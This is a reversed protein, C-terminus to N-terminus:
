PEQNGVESEEWVSYDSKRSKKVAYLKTDAHKLAADISDHDYSDASAIGISCSVRQDPSMEVRKHVAEEIDEIFNNELELQRYIRKATEVGEDLTHGPMILLFEDGGYRVVYGNKGAAREFLRSFCKLIVDGVAHGFTDNCLKFNDLDMYLVTACMSKSEGKSVQAEYDSIKKAFGQRNLLGTLLDTIASQQLKRNMESIENRAKLRYLTDTLQRLAFKFITIDNRDLFIINNTMNDHLEIAAIMYGTLEDDVSLPVCGFSVVRNVGFVSVIAHLDYFEMEYRSTVFEKKHRTLYETINLLQEDSIDYDGCMYRLVPKKDIIEVYIMGDLNYNNQMTAMATEIIYDITCNEKNILEQWAVLFDIGKTKDALMMEMESLQVLEELQYKDVTTLPLPIYKTILSQRHMRAFLIEEKHKYGKSTCSEMCAELIERAKEPKNQKEYLEAQELAFMTYVFFQLGDSRMMHYRAKDFFLQAREIDENKELLGCDFYYFFLDDDWLFYNPEGDPHLVHYIVREMKNLYFHANYDIGMKYSCYALMGYVKSMNCINMRHKKISRLLKLCLVLHNFATEFNDALIANTAMNYLTEAVFYYKKKKYFIALAKNFYENAITFQESVIRNFGLGNYINAEEVPNNQREIIELCRKYYYDVYGFCGYGQAMFVNKRWAAIILRENGTMLSLKMAHKFYKTDECTYADSIYNEKENGCGFFFVHALHNYWKNEMAKEAFADLEEGEFRRDWRYTNNWSDLSYIYFLLQALFIYKELGLEQAISMCKECNKEALSRQGEFSECLALLYYYNFSYKLNPHKANVNRLKECMILANTINKDYLSALAYIICFKALNKASINVKETTIKNDLIKLYYLAQKIAVTQIMNNLMILYEPFDSMVPEFIDTININTQADQVNWDLLFNMDEIKRVLSTWRQLTYAPVVYAENYNALFSVNNLTRSVFETLFYLTSNEALHLRNLVLFLTHQKSIFAFLKALSFAFQKQEYETEVVIMDETRKCKGTLIYSEFASRALYYVDAKELFESVPMDYYFRFYMQKIWGLFPEYAEQMRSPSFEHYLMEIKKTSKAVAEQIDEIPVNLTNYHKVFLISSHKQELGHIISDVIKKTYMKSYSEMKAGGANRLYGM